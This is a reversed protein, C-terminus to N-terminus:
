FQESWTISTSAVIAAGSSTASITLTDLNDLTFSITNLDIQSQTNGNLYFGCIVRGGTVTTGAVDYSVCSTPTSIDTYSPAGGLTADLVLKFLADASSTNSSTGNYGFLFGHADDGLGVEQVSNAVGQTYIATFCCLGGQGARYHLNSKSSIRASSNITATTSCVAFPSSHTATGSGTVQTNVLETNLTYCFQLQIRPTLSTVSLNGFADM